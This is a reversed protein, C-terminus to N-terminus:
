DAYPAGWHGGFAIDAFPRRTRTQTERGRLKEPLADLKGRYPYGIAIMAMPTYHNPIRFETRARDADFGAMQHAALGSEVAQLVLNESALGTDHQAWRNPKGNQTFNECAVSIMLVPAKLAWANGEVLCARAKELAQLDTGDFILYRWPQENYCSPAWRAAELLTLVESHEVRRAEDFAVPSWRRRILEIIQYRAPAQKEPYGLTGSKALKADIGIHELHELMHELYDVIVFGLTIPGSSGVTLVKSWAPEPTAEAAELLHRNFTLWTHIVTKWPRAQYNNKRVWEDGNYSAMVIGDQMQALMLRQHNNLASDILHGLEERPSWSEPAPKEAAKNPAIAELLGPAAALVNKLEEIATHVASADVTKTERNDTM